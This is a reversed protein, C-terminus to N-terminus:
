SISRGMLTLSCYCACSVTQQLYVVPHDYPMVKPDLTATHHQLRRLGHPPAVPQQAM